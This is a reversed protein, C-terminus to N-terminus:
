FSVDPTLKDTVKKTIIIIPLMILTFMLGVTTSDILASADGLQANEFIYWPITYIAGDVGQNVALLMPQLYFSFVAMVSTLLFTAITPMVLPLNIAFLEHWFGLGDLKAQETISRPIRNMAGSIMIVNTGLGAWIAYIYILGWVTQPHELTDWGAFNVGFTNLMEAVPGIFTSESNNFMYRFALTLVVISVMSPLYFAVRFFREFPIKKFFTYAVVIAMPLTICNIAIAHFTNKFANLMTKNQSISKALRIYNDLGAFVYKGEFYDFSQFSLVLTQINVYLWFVLWQAIPFAVLSILFLTRKRKRSHM